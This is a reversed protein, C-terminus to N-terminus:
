LKDKTDVIKANKITSKLSGKKPLSKLTSVRKDVNKLTFHKTKKVYTLSPINKIIGTIKDYIVDKARSLRKNEISDKLFIFLNDTEQETFDHEKSYIKSYDLIKNLKITKNLKCWPENRNSIQENELFTELASLENSLKTEKIPSGHNMLMTKYKLNKLEHCEEIKTEITTEQM